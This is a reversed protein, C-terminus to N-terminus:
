ENTGKLGKVIGWSGNQKLKPALFSKNLNIQLKNHPKAVMVVESQFFCVPFLVAAAWTITQLKTSGDMWGPRKFTFM